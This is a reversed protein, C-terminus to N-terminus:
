SAARLEGVDRGVLLRIRRQERDADVAVGRRAEADLRLHDVVREVIGEALALDRLVERLGIGIEDHEFHQGLQLLVNAREVADVELGGVAARHREGRQDVDVGVLGPASETDCWLWNGATVSDNLRGCPTASPWATSAILAASVCIPLGSDSSPLKWPM